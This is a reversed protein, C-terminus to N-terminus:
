AQPTARPGVSQSCISHWVIADLALATEPAIKGAFAPHPAFGFVQGHGRVLGRQQLQWVVEPMLNADQWEKSNMCAGFATQSEAVLRVAGELVDLVHVAGDPRLFYLDGFASMGIPQLRGGVLPSWEALLRQFDFEQGQLFIDSWSLSM